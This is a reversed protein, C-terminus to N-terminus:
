LHSNNANPCDHIDGGRDDLKPSVVTAMISYFCHFGLMSYESETAAYKCFKLQEHGWNGFLKFFDFTGQDWNKLWENELYLSTPWHFDQIYFSDSSRDALYLGPSILM